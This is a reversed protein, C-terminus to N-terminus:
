DPPEGPLTVDLVLRLPGDVDAFASGGHAKAVGDAVFLGLKSGAGTGPQRPRVLRDAEPQGLQPGDRETRVVLRGARVEASVRVPGESTWWVLSQHVGLIMRLRETSSRSSRGSVPGSPPRTRAPPAAIQDVLAGVDTQKLRRDQRSHAADLSSALDRRADTDTVIRLV